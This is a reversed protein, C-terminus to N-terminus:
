DALQRSINGIMRDAKKYEKVSAKSSRLDLQIRLTKVTEKLLEILKSTLEKGNNAAEVTLNLNELM